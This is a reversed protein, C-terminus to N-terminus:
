TQLDAIQKNLERIKMFDKKPKAIETNLQDILSERTAVDAGTGGPIPMQQAANPKPKELLQALTTLVQAGDSLDLKAITSATAADAPDLGLKQLLGPDIQKSDLEVQRPSTPTTKPPESDKGTVVDQLRMFELAVDENLGQGKLAELRQLRERFEDQNAALGAIRKDKVSQTRKTVEEEVYGKLVKLLEPSVSSTSGPTAASPPHTANGDGGQVDGAPETNKDTM